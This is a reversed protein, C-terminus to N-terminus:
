QRAEPPQDEDPEDLPDSTGDAYVLRGDEIRTSDERTKDIRTDETM